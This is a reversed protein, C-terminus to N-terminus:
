SHSVGSVSESVAATLTVTEGNVSTSASTPSVTVTPTNLTWKAYYTNGATVSSAVNQFSSDSYWGDFKYGDKTPTALNTGDTPTTEFTGGNTIAYVPNRTREANDGSDYVGSNESSWKTLYKPADSDSLYFIRLIETYTQNNWNQSFCWKGFISNTISSSPLSSMDYIITQIQPKSGHFFAYDGISTVKSPIYVSTVKTDRFAGEAITTLQSQKSIQVSTLSTCGYFANKGISTVGDSITLTKLNTCGSFVGEPIASCGNGLKVSELSNFYQFDLGDGTVNGLSISKITGKQKEFIGDALLAAGIKLTELPAHDNNYESNSSYTGSFLNAPLSLADSGEIVVEKLKNCKQFAGTGIAGVKGINVATLGTSAFAYVEITKLSAPFTFTELSSCGNFSYSGITTLSSTEEFSVSKLATCGSFANNPITTLGTGIVITELSTNGSFAYIGMSTVANPISLSTIGTSNQFAYEGISNLTNPLTLTTLVSINSFAHKNLTTVGSPVAYSVNGKKAPYKILTKGDASFLIGDDAKYVTNGSDVTIETLGTMSGFALEHMNTVSAPLSISTCSNMGQFARSGIYTVGQNVVVATITHTGELSNWGRATNSSFDAMAGSGSIILTYTTPDDNNSTLQWKVADTVEGGETTPAGCNGSLTTDVLLEPENAGPQGALTSLAEAAAAYRAFDLLEMQEDNLATKAEDIADLQAAVEEANDATIEEAAPLADILAQVEDVAPDTVADTEYYTNKDGDAPPEPEDSTTVCEGDHGAELTCGETATCPEAALASVPALSLVMVLSLLAALIRKKM